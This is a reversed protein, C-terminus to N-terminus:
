MCLELSENTTAMCELTLSFAKRVGYQQKVKQELTLPAVTAGAKCNKPFKILGAIQHGETANHEYRTKHFDILM